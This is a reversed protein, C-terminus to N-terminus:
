DSSFAHSPINNSALIEWPNSLLQFCTIYVDRNFACRFNQILLDVDHAKEMKAIQSGEMLNSVFIDDQQHIVTGDMHTLLSDTKKPIGPDAASSSRRM